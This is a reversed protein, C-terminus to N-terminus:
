HTWMKNLLEAPISYYVTTLEVESFTVTWLSIRKLKYIVFNSRWLFFILKGSKCVKSNVQSAREHTTHTVSLLQPPPFEIFFCKQRNHHIFNGLFFNNEDNIRRKAKWKIFCTCAHSMLYIFGSLLRSIYHRSTNIDYFYRSHAVRRNQSCIKIM